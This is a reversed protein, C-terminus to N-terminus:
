MDISRSAYLSTRSVNCVCVVPLIFSSFLSSSIRDQERNSFDHERKDCLILFFVAKPRTQKTRPLSSACGFFHITMYNHEERGKRRVCINLFFLLLFVLWVKWQCVVVVLRVIRMSSKLRRGSDIM